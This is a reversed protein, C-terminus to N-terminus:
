QLLRTNSAVWKYLKHIFATQVVKPQQAAAAAGVATASSGNPSTNGSDGNIRPQDHLTSNRETGSGNLTPPGMSSSPTPSIDMPDRPPALTSGSSPLIPISKHLNPNHPDPSFPSRRAEAVSAMMGSRVVTSAFTTATTTSTTIAITPTSINPAALARRRTLFKLGV